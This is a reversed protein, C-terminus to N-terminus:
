AWQVYESASTQAFISHINEIIKATSIWDRRQGFKVEIGLRSVIAFDRHAHLDTDIYDGGRGWVVKPSHEM